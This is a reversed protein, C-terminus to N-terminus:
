MAFEKEFDFRDKVCQEIYEVTDDAYQTGRNREFGEWAGIEKLKQIIQDARTM